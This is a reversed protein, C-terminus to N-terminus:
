KEKRTEIKIGEIYKTNIFYEYGYIDIFNYIDNEMINIIIENLNIIDQEKMEIIYDTKSITRIIINM